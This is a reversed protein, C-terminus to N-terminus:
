QEGPNHDTKEDSKIDPNEISQTNKDKLVALRISIEKAKKNSGGLLRPAEQYYKMLDTLAAINEPDLEVARQLSKKSDKALQMAKLWGSIEALEGYSKALWHHYRSINPSKRIANTFEKIAANIDGAEYFIQGQNFNNDAGTLEGENAFSNFAVLSIFLVLILHTLRM